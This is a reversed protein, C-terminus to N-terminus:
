PVITAFIHINEFVLNTILYFLPAKPHYEIAVLRASITRGVTAISKHVPQPGLIFRFHTVTSTRWLDVFSPAKTDFGELPGTSYSIGSIMPLLSSVALQSLLLAASLLM